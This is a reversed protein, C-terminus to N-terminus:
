DSLDVRELVKDLSIPFYNTQEVCVCLSRCQLEATKDHTHGYLCIQNFEVERPHHMLIFNKCRFRKLIPKKSFVEWGNDLVFSKSLRDHNGAIFTKHGNLAKSFTEFQEKSGLCFDGLHFVQDNPAIVKNWNQVLIENMEEVSSFPRNCYDIINKHCLHLDSTFWVAMKDGREENKVWKHISFYAKM